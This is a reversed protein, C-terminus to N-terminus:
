RFYYGSASCFSLSFSIDDISVHREEQVEAEALKKAAAAKRARVASGPLTRNVADDGNSDSSSDGTSQSSSCRIRCFVFM